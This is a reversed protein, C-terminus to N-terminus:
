IPNEHLRAIEKKILGSIRHKTIYINSRSAGLHQAIKSVSWGKVVYLDFLQYQKPNVKKKVRELAAEVLNTEWENDWAADLAMGAPDPIREILATGTENAAPAMIDKQRKRFQDVIRWRTQNLLWSKFSGNKASYHFDPLAKCVYTVTEQVADQAEADTLGAKMAASYILKWYTEFFTRWSEQDGCDKLRGLLSERTPILEDSENM